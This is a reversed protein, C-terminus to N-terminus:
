PKLIPVSPVRVIREHFSIQLSYQASPLNDFRFEGWSSLTSMRIHDGQVILDVHGPGELPGSSKDLIQGILTLSQDESRRMWLSIELGDAEYTMQRSGADSKRVNAPLLDNFSDFTLAAVVATRVRDALGERRGIEIVKEVAHAPPEYELEDSGLSAMAQM